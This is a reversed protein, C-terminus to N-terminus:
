GGEALSRGFRTVGAETVLLDLPVDTAEVPLMEVRQMEFAFGVAVFSVKRDVLAGLTRDYFGAGYGVRYGGRDIALLPTVVVAPVAMPADAPPERLGFGGAVLPQGPAWLHLALPRGRGVVRPLLIARGRAALGALLGETDIEDGLSRFCAVPGEPLSPLLGLLRDTAAASLRARDAAGLGARLARMRQRM